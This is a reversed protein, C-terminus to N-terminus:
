TFFRLLRHDALSEAILKAGSFDHHRSHDGPVAVAHAGAAVAAKCGNESDELVLMNAPSVGFREAATLYIEPHPKGQSIDEATLSFQFEHSIGAIRIVNQVYAAHSSTTVAAPIGSRNLLELLDLLGPMPRLMNPLIEAFIEDTERLIDEVTDTFGYWELMIPIAVNAQRGMMQTVLEPDLSRDRREVIRRGVIEYLEETNFMLGDLDFAVAQIIAQNM